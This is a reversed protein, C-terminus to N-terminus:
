QRMAQETASGPSTSCVRPEAAASEHAHETATSVYVCRHEACSDRSGGSTVPQLHQLLSVNSYGDFLKEQWKSMSESTLEKNKM